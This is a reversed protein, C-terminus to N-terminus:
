KEGLAAWAQSEPCKSLVSKPSDANPTSTTPLLNDNINNSSITTTRTFSETNVQASATTSFVNIQDGAASKKPSAFLNDPLIHEMSEHLSFDDGNNDENEHNFTPNMEQQLKEAEDYEQPVEENNGRPSFNFSQNKSAHSLTPSPFPSGESLGNYYQNQHHLNNPKIGLLQLNMLRREQIEIAQQLKAQDELKRRLLMDQTNYFTRSGPNLDYHERSDIASLSRCLHYDEREFQQHQQKKDPIKGKEKYPKVLVRSDCVFHPNGKALIIKVTESYVFTVFGFMRKQQYPIRVDQVPGYISFYNSVDEERFTSDAPFTLYIQRSSHNVNGGLNLTSFDNRDHQYRGFKHVEDGMMLASAASRPSDNQQQMLFDMCKNYPFSSADGGRGAMFHSVAALKQQQAAANSRIIEQCQGIVNANGPSVVNVSSGGHLFRCTSGNKCFGRSYYLCPKWGGGSNLDESGYFLDDTKPDSLFSLNSQFQYKDVVESSSACLSTPNTNKTLISAYSPSSAASPSVSNSLSWLNSSSSSSSSSLSLPTPRSIPNFTASTTTYTTTPNDSPLLSLQTKANLILNHLLTEPGFALRIMEKDGHDQLLLCGMIKSANEPDLSQIRSFVIKTAEYSDM